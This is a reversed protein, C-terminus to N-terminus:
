PTVGLKLLSWAVLGTILTGIGTLASVVFPVLAKDAANRLWGRNQRREELEAELRKAAAEKSLDRRQEERELAKLEREEKRAAFAIQQSLQQGLLTLAAATTRQVDEHRDLRSTMTSEMRDFQRALAGVRESILTSESVEEELSSGPAPTLPRDLGLRDGEGGFSRRTSKM